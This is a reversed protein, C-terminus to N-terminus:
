PCSPNSIRNVTRQTQDHLNKLLETRTRGTFARAISKHSRTEGDKVVEVLDQRLAKVAECNTRTRENYAAVAVIGAASYIVISVVLMITIATFRLPKMSQGSITPSSTPLGGDRYGLDACNYDTGKAIRASREELGTDCESCEGGVRSVGEREETRDCEGQSRQLAMRDISREAEEQIATRSRAGDMNEM